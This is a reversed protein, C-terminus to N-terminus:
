EDDPLEWFSRKHEGYGTYSIDVELIKAAARLSKMTYGGCNAPKRIDDSFMGRKMLLKRLHKVAGAQDQAASQILDRLPDDRKLNSLANILRHKHTRTMGRGYLYPIISTLVHKIVLNWYPWTPPEKNWKRWTIVSVGLLRACAAHKEKMTEFLISYLTEFEDTDLQPTPIETVRARRVKNKSKM